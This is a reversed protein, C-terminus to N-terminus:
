GVPTFDFQGQDTNDGAGVGKEQNTYYLAGGTASGAFAALAMLWNRLTKNPTIAACTEQRAARRADSEAQRTARLERTFEALRAEEENLADQMEAVKVRKRDAPQNKEDVCAQKDRKAKAVRQKATAIDAKIGAQSRRGAELDQFRSYVCGFLSM